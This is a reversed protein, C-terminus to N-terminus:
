SAGQSETSPSPDRPPSASKSGAPNASSAAAALRNATSSALSLRIKGIPPSASANQQSRTKPGASHKAGGGLGNLKTTPPSSHHETKERKARSGLLGLQDDAEEERQRREGPKLTPPIEGSLNGLQAASTTRGLPATTRPSPPSPELPLASTAISPSAPPAASDPLADAVGVDMPKPGDEEGGSDDGYDLLGFLPSGEARM